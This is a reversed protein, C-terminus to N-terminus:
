PLKISLFHPNALRCSGAAIELNKTNDLEWYRWEAYTMTVRPAIQSHPVQESAIMSTLLTVITGFLDSQQRHSFFLCCYHLELLVLIPQKIQGCRCLSWKSLTAAHALKNWYCSKPIRYTPFMINMFNERKRTRM